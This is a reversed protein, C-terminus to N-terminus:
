RMQTKKYTLSEIYGNLMIIVLLSPISMVLYFIATQLSYGFPLLFLINILWYGLYIMLFFRLSKTIWRGPFTDKVNHYYVPLFGGTLIYPLMIGTYYWLRATKPINIGLPLLKEALLHMALMLIPFLVASILSSVLFGPKHLMVPQRIRIDDKFIKALVLGGIGLNIVDVLCIAYAEIKASTLLNFGGDFDFAIIGLAGPILVILSAFLSHYLGKAAPTRGPLVHRTLYFVVAYLSGMFIYAIIVSILFGLKPPEKQLFLQAKAVQMVMGAAMMIIGTLLCKKLIQISIEKPM